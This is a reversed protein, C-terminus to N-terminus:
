CRQLFRQYRVMQSLAKVAREPTEYFVTQHRAGDVTYVTKDRADKMLSVGVVPKGYREMLAAIQNVYNAEFAKILDVAMQGLDDSAQPDCREVAAALKEIFGLRGMVGLHIVADCGEWGLLREMVRLPVAPDNDGVLDVPNGRSWFPPLLTDIEDVVAAPLAPIALGHRACLDTTVVGWGGGLTMIAVRNGAPLPLATFAAALDLLDMSHPVALIGAQRCVAEFVKRDTAMAGTHSAAAKHGARTQGGKLLVIPKECSVRRAASFFRRGDKVSELYLLVTRTRGDVAFAELYDEVTIMAENGSGCFARIGVGQAEAFTLLQTGLNGSQAVMATAGPQPTTATGTCHLRIHPNSIGMTNPGLLLIGHAQAAAVVRAELDRGEAGTEGFGSTVLVMHRIGKAALEPIIGLVKAAPLTVVALDVAEPLDAIAPLVRRGAIIGGRPNILFVEGEYGGDITHHPLMHGWKGMTASAGVFVVSRPHFLAGIAEPSVAPRSPAGDTPPTLTILADVAVPDGEPTAILPNIDIEALAPHDMALRSLAVLIEALAERDVAAEGRFDGLLKQARIADIMEHADAPSLPAVGLVTDGLAETLIGGLGFLVMPGFQPDRVMGAVFERRGCIQRQVLLGELPGGAASQIAGAAEEVATPSALGLHVLGQESKHLLERGLGKLVVPYGLAAAAEVADAATETRTEPVTPVGCARLLSKGDFEDLSRRGSALATDISAAIDV